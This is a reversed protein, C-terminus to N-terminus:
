WERSLRSIRRKGEAIQQASSIAIAEIHPQWSQTSERTPIAEAWDSKGFDRWWEVPWKELAEPLLKLPQYRTL